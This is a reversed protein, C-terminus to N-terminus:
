SSARVPETKAYLSSIRHGRQDMRRVQEDVSTLQRAALHRVSRLTMREQSDGGIAGIRVLGVGPAYFKTQTGGQPELPSTEDTRMVGSYCGTPVCNRVNTAHVEAIDYFEAQRSYGQEYRNGVRPRHLMYVGARAGGMGTIWLSPAGDFRGDAFEEPYEGFRWLTGDDDQAFFALESEELVGDNYDRDWVVRTLVGDIEKVMASVTFVVRHPTTEGEETVTGEYVWETGPTLPFLVNDVRTPHSFQAVRSPHSVSPILTSTAAGSPVGLGLLLPIAVV